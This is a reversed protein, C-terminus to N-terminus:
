EHIEELDEENEDNEDNEDIEDDEGDEDNEDGAGDLTSLVQEFGPHICYDRSLVELEELKSLLSNPASADNRIAEIEEEEMNWLIDLMGEVLSADYQFTKQVEHGLTDTSSLAITKGIKRLVSLGNLRTQPNTLPGCQRTISQITEVVSQAVDFAIDYQQGGRMSRYTINIEKWVSSSLHDFNVVRKREREQIVHIANDIKGLVDPHTEAALRLITAVSKPKPIEIVEDSAPNTHADGVTNSRARKATVM